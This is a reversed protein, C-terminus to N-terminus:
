MSGDWLLFWYIYLRSKLLTFWLTGMFTSRKHTQAAGKPIWDPHFVQRIRGQLFISISTGLGQVMKVAFIICGLAACIQTSLYWRLTQCCPQKRRCGSWPHWLCEFILAFRHGGLIPFYKRKREKFCIGWRPILGEITKKLPFPERWPGVVQKPPPGLVGDLDEIAFRKNLISKNEKNLFNSPGPDGKNGGRIGIM